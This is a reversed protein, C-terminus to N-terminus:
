PAGPLVGAPVPRSEPDSRSPRPDPAPPFDRGGGSRTAIGAGATAAQRSRATGASRTPPEQNRTGPEQNKRTEPKQNRTEPKQNRPAHRPVPTGGTVMARDHSTCRATELDSNRPESTEPKPNRLKPPPATQHRVCLRPYPSAAAGPERCPVWRPTRSDPCEGTERDLGHRGAPAPSPISAYRTVWSKAKPEM